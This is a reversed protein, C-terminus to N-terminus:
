IDMLQDKYSRSVPIEFKANKGVIAKYKGTFWKKMKVLYKTNIIFSRHVRLFNEPLHEEMYSIPENLLYEREEDRAVTYKGSAKVFIVNECDLFMIEDNRHVKLKTMKTPQKQKKELYHILSDINQDYDSKQSTFKDLKAITKELRQASIPKLLYDITNSDFAELAYQDYATTFIIVPKTTENLEKLVAFGDKGPMQIDLFVLDPKLENIKEIAEKGNNAYDIIEIKSQYPELLGTLREQALKEDEVIIAKIVM